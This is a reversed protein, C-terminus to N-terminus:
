DDVCGQPEPLGAIRSGQRSPGGPFLKYLYDHSSREEGLEQRMHKMLLRVMPTIGYQFFFKRLFDIVQWHEETLAIGEKRALFEALRENWEGPNVLNGKPQVQYTRGEFYFENVFHSSKAAPQSEKKVKTAHMEEIEADLMPLPLGAIKSGQILVGQPFIKELWADTAKEASLKDSIDAKLLKRIPTINYAQYYERMLRIIEWHEPTLTLGDSAALFAAVEENWDNLKQLRGNATLQVRIEQSPQM